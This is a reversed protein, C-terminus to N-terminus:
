GQKRDHEGREGNRRKKMKAAKKKRKGRMQRKESLTNWKEYQKENLIKKMERKTAIMHDLKENQMKLRAEQSPKEKKEVAAMRKKAGEIRLKASKLNLKEVQKQQAENLDLALVMKKTQIQAMDKANMKNLREKKLALRNNKKDQANLGFTVLALVIFVLKKM